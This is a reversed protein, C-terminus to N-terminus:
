AKLLIKYTVGNITVPWTTDSVVTETTVATVVPFAVAGATDFTMRSRLTGVTGAGATDFTSLILSGGAAGRGNGAALTLNAGVGDSTIRNAATFMQNTVGAADIGLQITAAAKRVLFLDSTGALASNNTSTWALNYNSSLRLSSNFVIGVGLGGSGGLGVSGSWSQFLLNFSGDHGISTYAGGSDRLYFSTGSVSGTYDVYFNRFGGNVHTAIFDGTFGSVSNIGLYTGATSNSTPAAGGNLYLLPHNTTATGASYPTGTLSMAPTSAAGNVSFINAASFTQATGLLAVTGTAPITLTRDANGVNFSLTRGASLAESTALTLDFAAGTSRIGLGTLGTATGGTIAVASAAQTAITGLGLNTRATAANALDSLNSAIALKGALATSLDTQSSLTGTISGWTTSGGGGGGSSAAQYIAYLLTQVSVPPPPQLTQAIGSM